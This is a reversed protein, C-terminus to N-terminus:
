NAVVPSALQTKAWLVDHLRREIPLSGRWILLLRDEDTDVMVTDLAMGLRHTAGAKMRITAFPHASPLLFRLPGHRSANLVEVPEGGSLFGQLALSPYAASYFRRNFDDPLLPMRQRQWADDYTGAYRNRPEWHPGIFGFGVPAPRDTPGTIPERPNELNPLPAGEQIAGHRGVFGVGV